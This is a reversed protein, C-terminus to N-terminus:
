HKNRVPQKGLMKLSKHLREKLFTIEAVNFKFGTNTSIDTGWFMDPVKKLQDIGLHLFGEADFRSKIWVFDFKSGNKVNLLDQLWDEITPYTTDSDSGSSSSTVWTPKHPCGPSNDRYGMTTHYLHKPLVLPMYYIPPPYHYTPPPQLQQVPPLSMSHRPAAPSVPDSDRHSVECWDSRCKLAGPIFYHFEM